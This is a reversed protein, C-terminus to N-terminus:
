HGLQSNLPLAEILDETRTNYAFQSFLNVGCSHIYGSEGCIRELNLRLLPPLYVLCSGFLPDIVLTQGFEQAYSHAVFLRERRAAVKFTETIRRLSALFEPVSLLRLHPPEQQDLFTLNARILAYLEGFQINTVRLNKKFLFFFCSGDQRFWYEFFRYAFTQRDLQGRKISDSLAQSLSRSFFRSFPNRKLVPRGGENRQSNIKSSM